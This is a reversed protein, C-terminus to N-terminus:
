QAGGGKKVNRGCFTETQSHCNPCLWRLNELRNNLSNGDIHDLQLVLARGQWSGTNGCDICKYDLLKWRKVYRMIHPTRRPRVKNLVREHNPRRENTPTVGTDRSVRAATKRNIGLLESAEMLSRSEAIVEAIEADSYTSYNRTMCWYHCM